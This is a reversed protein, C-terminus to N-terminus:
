GFLASRDVGALVSAQARLKNKTEGSSEPAANKPRGRLSGGGSKTKSRGKVHGTVAAGETRRAIGGHKSHKEQNYWVKQRNRQYGAEATLERMDATVDTEGDAIDLESNHSIIKTRTAATKVRITREGDSDDDIWSVDEPNIENRREVLERARRRIETRTVFGDQEEDSDNMKSTDEQQSELTQLHVFSDDEDIVGQEYAIYFAKTTDDGALAMIDGRDIKQKKYMGRRIRRNEEDEDSEDGSDDLGLGGHRRKKRVEGTVVAKHYQELQADDVGEQEKFKEIVLEAALTSDDMEQDDVLTELTKDQDEDDGGENDNSRAFGFINDEDSEEAESEIFESKELLKRRTETRKVVAAGNSLLTFANQIRRPSSVSGGKKLRKLEVEPSDFESTTALSLTRLPTRQSFSPGSVGPSWGPRESVMPPRYVVPTSAEPRTQTLFGLDNVYLEPQKQLNKNAAEILYEQEKEFIADAQRLLKENVTFAPQLKIDQTLELSQKASLNQQNKDIVTPMTPSFLDDIEANHSTPYDSLPAPEEDSFQSFVLAGTDGSIIPVLSLSAPLSPLPSTPPRRLETFEQSLNRPRVPSCLHDKPSLVGLPVRDEEMDDFDDCLSVHPPSMSLGRESVDEQLLSHRVVAKNEKDESRDFMFRTDNEKNNEDVEVFEESSSEPARRVHEVDSDDSDIIIHRSRRAKVINTEELIGEGSRLEVDDNVFEQDGDDSEHASQEYNSKEPVWEEDSIDTDHEEGEFVAGERGETGLTQLAKKAYMNLREEKALKEEKPVDKVPKGGRKVWEKEKQKIAEMNQKRVQEALFKSLSQHSSASETLRQCVNNTTPARDKRPSQVNTGAFGLHKKHIRSVKKRGSKREADERKILSRMEQSAVIDLEEDDSFTTVSTQGPQDELFQKKMEALKKRREEREQAAEEKVQLRETDFINSNHKLRAVRSVQRTPSNVHDDNEESTRTSSGCPANEHRQLSPSSFPIIPDSSLHSKLTSHHKDERMNLFLQEVRYKNRNDSKQISVPQEAIIRAQGKIRERDDKKTPAKTKKKKSIDKQTIKGKQDEQFALPPVSRRTVDKTKPLSKSSAQMPIENDSTPPTSSRAKFTDVSTPLSIPSTPFTPTTKSQHECPSDSRNSHGARLPTLHNSGSILTSSSVDLAILPVPMDLNCAAVTSGSFLARTPSGTPSSLCGSPRRSLGVTGQQLSSTSDTLSADYQFSRKFQPPTHDDDKVWRKWGFFDNSFVEKNPSGSDVSRTPSFSADSSPPIEEDVDAPATRHLNIDSSFSHDTTLLSADMDDLLCNRRKGYTKAARKITPSNMPSPSMTADPAFSFGQEAPM